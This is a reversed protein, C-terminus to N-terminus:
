RKAPTSTEEEMAKVLLERALKGASTGREAAMIRLRRLEDAPLQIHFSHMSATTAEQEKNTPGSRRM